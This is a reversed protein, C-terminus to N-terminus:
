DSLGCPAGVVLGPYDTAGGEACFVPPTQPAEIEFTESIQGSTPAGNEAICNFGIGFRTSVNPFVVLSATQCQYYPLSQAHAPVALVATGAVATTAIASIALFRGIHM